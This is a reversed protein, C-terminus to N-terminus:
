WTSVKVVLVAAPVRTFVRKGEAPVSGTVMPAVLVYERSQAGFYPTDKPSIWM